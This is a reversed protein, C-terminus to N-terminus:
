KRKMDALEDQRYREDLYDEIMKCGMESKLFLREVAYAQRILRFDEEEMGKGSKLDEVIRFKEFLLAGWQTYLNLHYVARLGADACQMAEDPNGM